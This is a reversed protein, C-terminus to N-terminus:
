RRANFLKLCRAWDFMTIWLYSNAISERHYKRANSRASLKHTATSYGSILGGFSLGICTFLNSLDCSKFILRIESWWESFTIKILFITDSVLDFIRGVFLIITAFVNLFFNKM